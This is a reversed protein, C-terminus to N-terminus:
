MLALLFMGIGRYVQIKKLSSLENHATAYAGVCEVVRESANVAHSRNGLHM